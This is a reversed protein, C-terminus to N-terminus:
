RLFDILTPQIVRAGVELSSRQVAEAMKLNVITGPIDADVTQSLLKQVNLDFDELRNGILETRNMRAGVDSWQQQVKNMRSDLTNIASNVGATNNALLDAELKKLVAFANDPDASEGFVLNGTVNIQISDGESMMYNITATDTVSSEANILDYPQVDTKQGNFVYRGNFQSNGTTVMQSYLHRVEAAIAERADISMSETAGRVALENARQLLSNVQSLLTDTMELHSTGDNVNRKYQDIRAVQAEYRMAYGVGVPDDSPKNLKKSTALMEQYKDMRTNNRNLNYMMQANMMNQTVRM